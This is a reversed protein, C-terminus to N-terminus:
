FPNLLGSNCIGIRKTNKMIIQIQSMVPNNLNMFVYDHSEIKEIISCVYYANNIGIESRTIGYM